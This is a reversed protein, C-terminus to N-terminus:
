RYQQKLEEVKNIALEESAYYGITKKKGDIRFHVVWRDRSNSFSYHKANKQRPREGDRRRRRPKAECEQKYELLENDSLTKMYNVEAIADEEKIHWSFNLRKGFVSYYTQYLQTKTVYVYYKADTHKLGLASGATPTCNFECCNWNDLYTQERSLLRKKFEPLDLGVREVIELVNFVLDDEGYKNYHNQLHQSHHKGSRLDFLHLRWRQCIRSASGIYRKGNVKSTISYIGASKSNV